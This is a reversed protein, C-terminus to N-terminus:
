LNVVVVVLLAGTYVDLTPTWPSNTICRIASASPIILWGLIFRDGVQYKRKYIEIATAHSLIVNHAAVYPEAHSDGGRACHGFPPSCRSPPYTGLMYGHRVAVNPENFTTWYKVRDGFAGFCVDAFHGFDSRSHV